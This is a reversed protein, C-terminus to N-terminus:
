AQTIPLQIRFTTGKGLASECSLNGGHKEVVIQYSIYMGMGTGKGIPKTTFFPDFIHRQVDQPIGFGNDSITVEVWNERIVATRIQIQNPHETIEIHSRHTSSEELADIANALINMFVQNLPGVYCDVLPLKGYSKLVQIEQCDRLDMFRHQLIRLTSDIGEHIDVATSNTEDTRSFTRLSSVIERIRNTGIKMSELVKPLDEQIFTLEYQKIKRQVDSSPNPYHSQYFWILELLNNAYAQVHALNGHVFNTPNNIEHAIGATLQGISAMKENQILQSQAQQLDLLAQRLEATKAELKQNTAATNEQLVQLAQNKVMQAQWLGLAFILAVILAGAALAIQDLSRLQGDITARPVVLAISWDVEQLPLYTIYHWQGDLKLLRNGTQRDLM